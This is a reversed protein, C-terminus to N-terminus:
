LPLKGGLVPIGVFPPLLRATIGTAGARPMDAWSPSRLLNSQAPGTDQTVRTRGNSLAVVLGGVAAVTGVGLMTLGTATTNQSDSTSGFSGLVQGADWVILGVYALVAGGGMTIISLIFAAKSAGHVVLTERPSSSSVVFSASTKFGGGTVRYRFATSLPKDCPTTCVTQWDDNGTTDQQIEVDDPAEVHVTVTGFSSSGPPTNEPAPGGAGGRDIHDIEPWPITDVEGTVLQIRAQAGPLIDVITGRVMGGDKFYVTDSGVPRPPPPAASASGHNSEQAAAASPLAVGAALAAATVARAVQQRPM